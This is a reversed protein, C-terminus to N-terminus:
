GLLKYYCATAHLTGTPTLAFDPVDGYHCWGLHRYIAEATSGAETDLVLLRLGTARSHAELAAMLASAVGGGRAQSHVQLKMVDGRHRGNPKLCPGLQVTGVVEGNREAFWLVLGPGLAAVVGDAWAKAEGPALPLTFGISAGGEVTASLLAALATAAHSDTAEVRRVTLAAASPTAVAPAAVRRQMTYKVIGHPFAHNALVPAYGLKRYFAPAQFSFTDLYFLSCGREAARAEFRRVLEVGLGARRHDAHVWLQQLEACAGWSRGVAGGIVKGSLKGTENGILNGSGDHAFCALARVEHMPAAAANAQGLGTDVVQAAAAPVEDDHLSFCFPEAM